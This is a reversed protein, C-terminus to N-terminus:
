SCSFLFPKEMMLKWMHAREREKLTSILIANFKFGNYMKKLLDKCLLLSNFSHLCIVFVFLASPFLILKSTSSTCTSFLFPSSIVFSSIIWKQILICNYRKFMFKQKCHFQTLIDFNCHFFTWLNNRNNIITLKTLQGGALM